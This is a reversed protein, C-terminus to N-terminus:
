PSAAVADIEVMAGEKVFRKVEVLTSAPPNNLDIYKDRAARLAKLQGMDTVFMNLKVVDKFTAGSAELATKLNAFAQEAQAAFDGEGVLNGDKDLPLQGSIYLTRGAPAEVVHSYGNPKPLGPPNIARATPDAKQAHATFALSLSLVVFAARHIGRM